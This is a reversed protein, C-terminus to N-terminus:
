RPGSIIITIVGSSFRVHDGYSYGGGNFGASRITGGQTAIINDKAAQLTTLWNTGGVKVEFGCLDCGNGSVLFDVVRFGLPTFIYVQEGLIKWNEDTLLSRALAEGDKGLLYNKQVQSTVEAVNGAARAMASPTGGAQFGGFSAYQFGGGFCGSNCHINTIEGTLRNVDGCWESTGSCALGTDTVTVGSGSKSGGGGSSGGGGLQSGPAVGTSSGSCSDCLFGPGPILSGTPINPNANDDLGTPDTRNIPDGSAYTYLNIGAAYGSPDASVFRGVSPDYARARLHVLGAEPLAIGGTYGFRVFPGAGSANGYADYGIARVVTGAASSMGIVSGREDTHLGYNTGNTRWVVPVTGSPGYAYFGLLNASADTEGALDGGDWILRTVAGGAGVQVSALRDLADYQLYDTPNGGRYANTLRDLADFTRSAGPSGAVATSNGRADYNFVPATPSTELQNLADVNYTVAKAAPAFVYADNSTTRSVIQGAPNYQFSFIVDNDRTNGPGQGMLHTISALRLDTGYAYNTSRMVGYTPNYRTQTQRGLDDFAFIAYASGYSDDVESLVGNTFHKFYFQAQSGGWKEYTREGAADYQNTMTYGGTTDTLMHGLADWTRSVNYSGGTAGTLRGLTDYAYSNTLGPAARTIVNGLADYSM